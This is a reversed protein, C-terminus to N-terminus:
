RVIGAEINYKIALSKKPNAKDDEMDWSDKSGDDMEVEGLTQPNRFASEDDAEIDAAIIEVPKVPQKTNACGM